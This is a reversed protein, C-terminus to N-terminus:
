RVKVTYVTAGAVRDTKEVKAGTAAIMAQAAILAAARQLTQTVQEVVPQAMGYVDLDGTAADYIAYDYTALHTIRLRTAPWWSEVMVQQKMMEGLVAAAVEVPLKVGIKARATAIANCAM